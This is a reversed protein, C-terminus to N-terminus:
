TEKSPPMPSPVGPVFVFMRDLRERRLASAQRYTPMAMSAAHGAHRLEAAAESLARVTHRGIRGPTLSIAPYLDPRVEVRAETRRFQDAFSMRTMQRAMAPIFVTFDDVYRKTLRTPEHAVRYLWEFGIAGLWEPARKKYDAIFDLTGGVGIAVPIQLDNAHRRIWREQKPHGLAVCIIDPAFARIKELDEASTAGRDGVQCDMGAIALGPNRERLISASREASDALGGFLLIRHNRRASTGALLPVLDAGAVREPLPVGLTSSAWVIPMGDALLLDASRLIAHVDEHQRATVLFDANVTVVQHSKGSLRGVEVFRGIQDLADRMNCQHIPIGMQACQAAFQPASEHGGAPNTSPLQTASM